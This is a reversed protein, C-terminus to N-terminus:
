DKIGNAAEFDKIIQLRSLYKTYVEVYSGRQEGGYEGAHNTYEYLPCAIINAGFAEKRLGSSSIPSTNIDVQGVWSHGSEVETFFLYEWSGDASLVTTAEVLGYLPSHTDWGFTRKSFDPYKAIYERTYAIDEPKKTLAFQDDRVADIGMYSGAYKNNTPNIENIYDMEHNRPKRQTTGYLALEADEYGLDIATAALNFLSIQLAIPLNLSHENHGKNFWKPKDFKGYAPLYRWVNQSTSLYYTRAILEGDDHETFALVAPRSGLNYIKSFYIKLKDTVRKEYKPELGMRIVEQANLTRGEYESGLFQASKLIEIAKEGDLETLASFSQIEAISALQQDSIIIEKTKQEEIKMRHLYSMAYEFANGAGLQGLPTEIIDAQTGRDDEVHITGDVSFSLYNYDVDGETIAPINIVLVKDEPSVYERFVSYTIGDAATFSKNAWEWYDPDGPTGESHRLDEGIIDEAMSLIESLDEASICQNPSITSGSSFEPTNM